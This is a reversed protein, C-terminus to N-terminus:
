RRQADGFEGGMGIERRPLLKSVGEDFDNRGEIVRPWGLEYRVEYVVDEAVVDFFHEGEVMGGLAGRVLEFYPRAREYESYNQGSMAREGTM